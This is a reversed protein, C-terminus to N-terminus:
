KEYVNSRIKTNKRQGLAKRSEKKQRCLLIFLTTKIAIFIERWGENGEFYCSFESEKKWEHKSLSLM